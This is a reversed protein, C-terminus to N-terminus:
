PGVMKLVSPIMSNFVLYIVVTLVTYILTAILLTKGLSYRKLLDEEGDNIVSIFVALMSVIEVMYIGVILQFWQVPIMKNINIISSFFTHGAAGAPGAGLLMKEIKEVAKTFSIMLQMIAATMSVVIGSTLPALLLAQIQMNSTSESLVDKLDEEVSKVDKLYSSISIMAKSVAKMGRKSIETLAKMVAEVIRSPYFNIAGFEKDFIAQEFTMGFTEINYLITAFFKSIKLDKIKPTINRLSREIPIGRALQTGLQFLVEAFES